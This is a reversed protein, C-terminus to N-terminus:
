RRNQPMGTLRIVAEPLLFAYRPDGPPLHYEQGSIVRRPTEARAPERSLRRLDMWRTDRLVLEKRREGLVLRVAEEPTTASLPTFAGKKFRKELLTNLDQLAAATEGRRARVEARTLYLEPTTLGTFLNFLSSFYNGKFRRPATASFYITRRLDDTSYAAYLATDIYGKTGILASSSGAVAHFIVEKNYAGAPLAAGPNLTNFDILASYIGLSSDAAAAASAWEGKLLYIRALLAWAAARSPRGANAPAPPLLRVAEKLDGTLQDFTKEVPARVSKERYDSSLRLPLGPDTAASSPSYPPTYVQSLGYLAFARFFLARGRVEDWRGPNESRPVGPLCDLVTNAWLVTKYGANWDAAYNPYDKWTYASKDAESSLAAWDTATFYYDDSASLSLVPTANNMVATNDLVAELDKLSTPTVLLADGKEDLFRRCGTLLLAAAMLLTTYYTFRNM